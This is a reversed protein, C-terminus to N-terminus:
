LLIIVYKMINNIINIYKKMRFPNSYKITWKNMKVLTLTENVRPFLIWQGIWEVSQKCFYGGGTFVTQLSNSSGFLLTSM